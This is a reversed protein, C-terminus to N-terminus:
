KIQRYTIRKLMPITTEIGVWRTEMTAPLGNENYTYIWISGESLAETMNNRSLLMQFDVISGMQPLPQFVFLYDLGFNPKPNNDYKYYRVNRQSTGPIPQGTMGLEPGIRIHEVINGVKDFVVTDRRVFPYDQEPFFGVVRGNEYRLSLDQGNRKILKGQSNYEFTTESRYENRSERDNQHHWITLSWTHNIIKSVRGNEYEFRDESRMEDTRIPHVSRTTIIRKTLRNNDDYIYEALLNDNYDYVRDVLFKSRIGTGLHDNFEEEKDCGFFMTTAALCIALAIVSRLNLKDKKM